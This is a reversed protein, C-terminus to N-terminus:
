TIRSSGPPLLDGREAGVDAHGAAPQAGGGDPGARRARGRGAAFAAYNFFSRRMRMLAGWFGSLYYVNVQTTAILGDIGHRDMVDYARPKNLLM